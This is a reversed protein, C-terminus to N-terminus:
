YVGPAAVFVVEVTQDARRTRVEAAIAACLSAHDEAWGLPRVYFEDRNVVLLDDTGIVTAECLVQIGTDTYNYETGTIRVFAKDAM